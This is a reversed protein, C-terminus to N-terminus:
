AGVVEVVRVHVRDTTAASGVIGVRVTTPAAAGPNFVVTSPLRAVNSTNYIVAQCFQGTVAFGVDVDIYNNSVDGASPTLVAEYCRRSAAGTTGNLNVEVTTDGSAAAATVEGVVGGSLDTTVVDTSFNYGLKQGVSYTVGTGKPLNFRGTTQVTGVASIAMAAFVVAFLSGAGGLRIVQGATLAAASGTGAKGVSNTWVIVSSEPADLVKNKM